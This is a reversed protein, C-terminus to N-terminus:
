YGQERDIITGDIANITLIAVNEEGYYPKGEITFVEQDYTVDGIFDWVPVMIYSGVDDREMTMMLNFEVSDVYITVTADDPINDYQPVWSFKYGCYDQFVENITEFDILPVDQSM